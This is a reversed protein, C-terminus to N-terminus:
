RKEFAGLSGEANSHGAKKHLLYVWLPWYASTPDIKEAKEFDGIAMDFNGLAFQTLGRTSYARGYDPSLTIAKNQDALATDYKGTVLAVMSRLVYAGEDTKDKGISTELDAAAQTYKGDRLFIDARVRYNVASPDLMIAQNLDAIALEFQRKSAFAN